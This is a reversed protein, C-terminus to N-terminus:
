PCNGAFSRRWRKLSPAGTACGSCTRSRFPIAFPRTIARRVSMPGCILMGYCSSETQEYIGILGDFYSREPVDIFSLPM